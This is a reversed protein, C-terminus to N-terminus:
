DTVKISISNKSNAEFIAVSIYFHLKMVRTERESEELVVDNFKQYSDCRSNRTGTFEANRWIKARKGKAPRLVRVLVPNSLPQVGGGIPFYQLEGEGEVGLGALSAVSDRNPDIFILYALMKLHFFVTLQLKRNRLQGKKCGGSLM